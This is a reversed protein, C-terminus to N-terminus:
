RANRGTNGRSSHGSVLSESSVRAPAVNRSDVGGRDRDIRGTDWKEVDTCHDMRSIPGLVLNLSQRDHLRRTPFNLRVSARATLCSALGGEGAAAHDGGRQEHGHRDGGHFLQDDRRGHRRDDGLEATEVNVRPDDRGIEEGRGDARRDIALERIEIAAFSNQEEAQDEEREARDERTRRHRHALQDGHPGDLPQTGAGDTGNHEGHESIEEGQLLSCAHLSEETRDPSKGAHGTGDDPTIQRFGRAEAPPPNEQDAHRKRDDRDDHQGPVHLFGQHFSLNCRDIPGTGAQQRAAQSAEQEHYQISRPM